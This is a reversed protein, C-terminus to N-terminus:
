ILKKKLRFDPIKNALGGCLFRDLVSPLISDQQNYHDGFLFTNAMKCNSWENRKTCEHGLCSAVGQLCADFRRATSRLAENDLPTQKWKVVSPTAFLSGKIGKWPFQPAAHLHLPRKRDGLLERTICDRTRKNRTSELKWCPVYPFLPQVCAQKLETFTELRNPWSGAHRMVKGSIELGVLWHAWVGLSM